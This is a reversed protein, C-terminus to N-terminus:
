LYAEKESMPPANPVSYQYKIKASKEDLKFLLCDKESGEPNNEVNAVSKRKNCLAKCAPSKFFIDALKNVIEATILDGSNTAIMRLIFLGNNRLFRKELKRIMCKRIEKYKDLDNIKLYKELFGTRNYQWFLKIFWSVISIATVISLLVMWFWLFIYLKENLMNVPLSCQAVVRNMSGIHRIKALCYGIRPFTSTVEWDKGNIIDSIIKTGFFKNETMNLNLFAQMLFIQGIANIFYLFKIFIYFLM